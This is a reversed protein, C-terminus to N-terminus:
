TRNLGLRGLVADFDATVARLDAVPAVAALAQGAARDAARYAADFAARLEAAITRDGATDLWDPDLHVATVAGGRITVRVADGAADGVMERDAGAAVAEAFDDLRDYVDRLLTLMENAFAVASADTPSVAPTRVEPRDAAPRGNRDAREVHAGRDAPRGAETVRRAWATLRHREGDALAALVADGLGDPGAGRRWSGALTLDAVRGAGDVVVRVSGSPDEGTYRVDASAAGGLLGALREAEDRMADLAALSPEAAPGSVM